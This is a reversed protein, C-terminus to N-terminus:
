DHERPKSPEFRFALYSVPGDLESFSHPTGAPIIVIDGPKVRRSEGGQRPGTQSMGLHVRSLDTSRADGLRGGTVLTGRGALIYYTETADNHILANAEPRLRHLSAVSAKGGKVSVAKIPQDVVRNAIQTRLTAEYDERSIVAGPSVDPGSQGPPAAAEVGVRQSDRPSPGPAQSAAPVVALTLALITFTRM